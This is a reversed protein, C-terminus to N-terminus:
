SSLPIIFGSPCRFSGPPDVTHHSVAWSPPGGGRFRKVRRCCVHGYVHACQYACVGVRPSYKHMAGDDRKGKILFLLRLFCLLLSPFSPPSYLYGQKQSKRGTCELNQSGRELVFLQFQNGGKREFNLPFIFTRWIRQMSTKTGCNRPIQLLPPSLCVDTKLLSCLHLRKKAELLGFSSFM